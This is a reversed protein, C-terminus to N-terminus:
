SLWMKEQQLFRKFDEMAAEVEDDTTDKGIIFPKIDMDELLKVTVEGQTFISLSM